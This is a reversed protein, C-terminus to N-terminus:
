NLNLIRKRIKNDLTKIAIECHNKESAELLYHNIVDSTLTDKRLRMNQGIAYSMSELPDGFSHGGKKKLVRNWFYKGTVNGDVDIIYAKARFYQRLEWRCSAEVCGWLFLFQMILKKAIFAVLLLAFDTLKYKKLFRIV